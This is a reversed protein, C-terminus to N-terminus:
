CIRPLPAGTPEDLAQERGLARRVVVPSGQFSRVSGIVAAAQSVEATRLAALADDVSKEPVACVMTGECALHLPDLGLVECVGRVVDSAPLRTEDIWMTHGCAEAFEHLVATVGGRTADRLARIAVGSDRLALFPATLPACDSEPAPEFGLSERAALIAVGHRGVPGTVILVDGPRLAPPGPPPSELVRGVGSTTLFMGDAAGRPVVKTDGTVIEVGAERAAAAVSSLIRDLTQHSLGEELILSLSLWQPIAGSVVLDNVTGFVALRGIDGGPFELPSVVFSDTTLALECGGHSLRASDNMAASPNRNLLPLLRQRLWRRMVRGGEGLTLSVREDPGSDPRPCSFTPIPMVPKM